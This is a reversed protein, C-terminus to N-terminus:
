ILFPILRHRVARRYSRYAAFRMRLHREEFSSKVWFYPITAM